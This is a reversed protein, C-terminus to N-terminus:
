FRYPLLPEFLYDSVSWRGSADKTLVATVDVVQKRSPTQLTMGVLVEPGDRGESFGEGEWGNRVCTLSRASPIPSANPQYIEDEILAEIAWSMDVREEKDPGISMVEAFGGRELTGSVRVGFKAPFARNIRLAETLKGAAKDFEYVYAETNNWSRMIRVMFGADASLDPQRAGSALIQPAAGNGLRLRQLPMVAGDEERVLLLQIDRLEQRSGKKDSVGSCVIMLRPAGGTGGISEWALYPNGIPKYREGELRAYESKFISEADLDVSAGASILPAGYARHPSCTASLVCAFLALALFIAKFPAHCFPKM